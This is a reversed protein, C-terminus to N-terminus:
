ETILERESVKRVKHSAIYGFVMYVFVSIIVPVAFGLFTFDMEIHPVGFMSFVSSLMPEAFFRALVCGFVSSILSIIGFRIAFELRINRVTFGTARMIGIDTREQIFTKSCVMMVTVLGFIFTLVYIMLNSGNAAVYFAETTNGVLKAYDRCEVTIDEGYKERLKDAIEEAHTDDELEIGFMHLNDIVYKKNNKTLRNLGDLSMSIAKGTDNMTQFIGVIMYEKSIDERGITVTDGIKLDQLKAVQETIVIENDYKIERGKYTTSFEDPYGKVQTMVREGNISMYLHSKYLREKIGSYEKVTNEIDEVTCKPELTKFAFEIECFPEGMSKLADRSRIFSSMFGGVFVMYMLLSTVLVVSIYRRPKSTIQRLGLSMGLMRKSIPLNIRNEFYIDDKGKTIAKVPSVKRIRGTFIYIFVGTIVFLILMLILGYLVPPDSLPLIGTMDFFLRSMWREVPIAIIFGLIVGVAEVFLYEIMYVKRFVPNGAGQSKLIGLNTYDIDMETSINHWTIVLFIAFLLGSFGTVVAMIIKIFLGTYHESTERTLSAWSMNDFNTELNLDRLLIDTSEDAKDSPHIYVVDGLAWNDEPNKMESICKGYLDDFDEDSIFVTKYGMIYTGMFPEQVFGRITFTKKGSLFDSFVKDGEKAKFLSKLGYPLYIEGKKLDYEGDSSEKMVSSFANGDTYNIFESGDKNFIPLQNQFKMVMISNGNIEGNCEINNGIICDYREVSDVYKSNRVKEDLEETYYGDKFFAYIAGNDEIEYARDVARQYNSDVGFMTMTSVVILITLILFGIFIGKRDRIGTKVLTIIEM